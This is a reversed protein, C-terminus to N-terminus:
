SRCVTQQVYKMLDLIIKLEMVIFIAPVRNIPSLKERELNCGREVCACVKGDDTGNRLSGCRAVTLARRSPRTCFFRYPTATETDSHYGKVFILIM